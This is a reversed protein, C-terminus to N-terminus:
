AISLQPPARTSRSPFIQSPPTVFDSNSIAADVKRGFFSALSSGPHASRSTTVARCCDQNCCAASRISRQDSEAISGHCQHAAKRICCAHPPAAAAALALPDFTGLLAFLLLFRATMRQM